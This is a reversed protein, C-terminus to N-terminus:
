NESDYADVLQLLHKIYAIAMRLTEVKSLRKERQSATLPLHKRLREFGENVNKVRARERENRRQIFNASELFSSNIFNPVSIRPKIMGSTDPRSFRYIYTTEKNRRMESLASSSSPSNALNSTIRSFVNSANSDNDLNGYCALLQKFCESVKPCDDDATILIESKISSTSETKDEEEIVDDILPKIQDCKKGSEIDM